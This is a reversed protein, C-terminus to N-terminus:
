NITSYAKIWNLSLNQNLWQKKTEEIEISSCEKIKPCFTDLKFTIKDDFHILFPYAKCEFPRNKYIKCIKKNADHFICNGFKDKKLSTLEGNKTKLKTSFDKFKKKEKPTLIVYLERERLAVDETVVKAILTWKIEREM